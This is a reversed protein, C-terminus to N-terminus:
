LLFLSGKERLQLMFRSIDKLLSVLVQVNFESSVAKGELAFEKHIV